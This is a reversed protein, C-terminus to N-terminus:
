RSEMIKIISNVISKLAPRNGNNSKAPRDWKEFIIKHRVDETSELLILRNKEALYQDVAGIKGRFLSYM